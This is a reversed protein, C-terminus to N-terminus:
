GGLVVRVSAIKGSVVIKRDTAFADPPDPSAIAARMTGLPLYPRQPMFMMRGLDPRRITGSGWRWLGAVARFLTSKGVGSDGVILVREGRGIEVTAEAIVVRGDSLLVSVDEFGLQGESDQVLLDSSCVDSSCDSIRM